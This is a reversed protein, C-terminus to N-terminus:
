KLLGSYLGLVDKIIAKDTDTVTLDYYYEDGEFRIITETSESIDKLMLLEDSDLAQNYYLCEDYWEWVVGGDNDRVTDFPGVTKIYKENDTVITLKEWFVWDDETYNYRICIWTNDGQVGIYPIIYSRVDIYDPMSNHMYWTIGEVKDVDAEFKGVNENYLREKEVSWLNASETEATTLVDYNSVLAQADASLANYADRAAKISANSDLTVTGIADILSVVENAQKELEAAKAEEEAKENDAEANQIETTDNESVSPQADKSAGCGVVTFCLLLMLISLVIKKM